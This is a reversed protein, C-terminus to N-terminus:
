SILILSFLRLDPAYEANRDREKLLRGLVDGRILASAEAVQELMAAVRAAKFKVGSVDADGDGQVRQTSDVTGEGGTDTGTVPSTGKVIATSTASSETSAMAVLESRAQELLDDIRRLPNSVQFGAVAVTRAGYGLGCGEAANGELLVDIQDTSTEGSEQV